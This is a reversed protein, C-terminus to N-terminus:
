AARDWDVDPDLFSPVKPREGGPAKDSPQNSPPSEGELSDVPLTCGVDRSGEAGPVSDGPQVSDGLLHAGAGEEREGDLGVLENKRAPLLKPIQRRGKPTIEYIWAKRANAAAHAVRRQVNTSKMFGRARISNVLTGRAEVARPPADIADLDDVHFRGTEVLTEFIHLEM